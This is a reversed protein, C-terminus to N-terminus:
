ERWNRAKPTKGIGPNFSNTPDIQRYFGKLAPKAAYLHGVNHEAPYEAGKRDLMELMQAKLAHADVGKKVIYDQHFVHCMFHGYYLKAVLQSDIEPPLTEFWEAENRRLAIDLPLIEEVEEEHMAHYRVAAGAAVFRHLFAKRGEEETCAFFDGEADRFFGELFHQAEAVGEGSMRLLLHHEYRDRYETLRPPLHGPMLRSVSQMVRDTLHRPVLPAKNLRADVKGKALFLDPMRDTGLRDIMLFTDKGYIEAINFCDRHMYEGAVPLARFHGLIHRRIATLVATDNTGIYFVQQNPEAPFTDLRVAFVALKGACGSAEFLRRRDANFRSPTDADVDRVRSAYDPDSAVRGNHAIEHPSYTGRELRTLIEEPTDGLDIGLHNVLKLQGDTGVQAYLALETYAPGRKVLAGGSNNCIGGIVSAGICSSGIVSHPERGYPKLLKELHHLTSGPFAIVQEANNILQLKDLKRTSVIVIDRDYDDGSPTSGETLGTNAAQMIVITDAAVCAQLIRWQQLLTQPFVVALARGGGSRYGHRYRETSREDTLVHNGGVIEQLRALLARTDRPTPAM